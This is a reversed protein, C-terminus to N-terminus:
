DIHDHIKKFDNVLRKKTKPNRLGASPHYTIFFSRKNQIVIEGHHNKIKKKGIMSNVAVGGLLVIMDPDILQIQKEMWLSICTNLEDSRPKRNQPPHCKIVSTIFVNKRNLGSSQLLDTFLAGSRGVFPRGTQDENKGPAEGIFLLNTHIPGEGPVAKKRNKWLRCKTCKKIKAAIDFLNEERNM